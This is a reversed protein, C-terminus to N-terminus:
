QNLFKEAQWDADEIALLPYKKQWEIFKVLLESRQSVDALAVNVERIANLIMSETMDDYHVNNTIAFEKTTKLIESEKATKKM